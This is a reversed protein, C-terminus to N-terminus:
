INKKQLVLHKKAFCETIARPVEWASESGGCEHLRRSVLSARTMTCKKGWCRRGRDEWQGKSYKRCIQTGQVSWSVPVLKGRLGKCRHTIRCSQTLGTNCSDTDNVNVKPVSSIGLFLLRILSRIFSQQYVNIYKKVVQSLEYVMFNLWKCCVIWHHETYECNYLWWM